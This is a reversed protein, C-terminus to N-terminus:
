KIGRKRKNIEITPISSSPLSDYYKDTLRATLIATIVLLGIICPVWILPPHIAIILLLVM